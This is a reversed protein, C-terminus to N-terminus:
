QLDVEKLKRREEIVGVVEMFKEKSWYGGSYQRIRLGQSGTIQLYAHPPKVKYWIYKIKFNVESLPIILTEAKGYNLYQLEITNEKVKISTIYIKNWQLVEYGYVIFIILPLIITLFLNNITTAFFVIILCVVITFVLGKKTRDFYSIGPTQFQKEQVNM